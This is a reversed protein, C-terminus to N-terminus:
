VVPSGQRMAVGRWCATTVSFLTFGGIIPYVWNGDTIRYNANCIWIDSEDTSNTNMLDFKCTHRISISVLSLLRRNDSKQGRSFHSSARRISPPAISQM